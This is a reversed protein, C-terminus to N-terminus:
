LNSPHIEALSYIQNNTLKKFPMTYGTKFLDAAEGPECPKVGHLRFLM